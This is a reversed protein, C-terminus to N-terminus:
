RHGTLREVEDRMMELGQFIHTAAVSQRNDVGPQIANVLDVDIIYGQHSRLPTCAGTLLGGMLTLGLGAVLCSRAFSVSM